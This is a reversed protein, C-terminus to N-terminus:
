YSSSSYSSITRSRLVQFLWDVYVCTCACSDVVFLLGVLSDQDGAGGPGTIEEIATEKRERVM